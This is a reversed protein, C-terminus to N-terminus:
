RWFQNAALVSPSVVNRPTDCPNFGDGSEPVSVPAHLTLSRAQDTQFAACHGVWGKRKRVGFVTRTRQCPGIRNVTNRQAIM